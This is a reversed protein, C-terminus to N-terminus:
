PETQLSPEFIRTHGHGLNLAMSAYTRQLCYVPMKGLQVDRTRDGDGAKLILGIVGNLFYRSRIPAHNLVPATSFRANTKLRCQCALHRGAQHLNATM